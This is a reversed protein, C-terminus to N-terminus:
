RPDSAAENGNLLFHLGLTRFLRHVHRPANILSLQRQAGRYRAYAAVIRSVGSSDLHPVRTLDVQVAPCDDRLLNVLSLFVADCTRLDVDGEIHVITPDVSRDTHVRFAPLQAPV